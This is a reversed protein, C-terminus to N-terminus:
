LDYKSLTGPCGDPCPYDCSSFICEDVFLNNKFYSVKYKNSTENYEVIFNKTETIRIWQNNNKLEYEKKATRYRLYIIGVSGFIFLLLIFWLAVEENLLINKM